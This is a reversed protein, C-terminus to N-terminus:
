INFYRVSEETVVLLMSIFNKTKNKNITFSMQNYQLAAASCPELIALPRFQFM